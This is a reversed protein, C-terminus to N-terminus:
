HLKQALFFCGLAVPVILAAYVWFQKKNGEQLALFFSSLTAYEFVYINTGLVAMSFLAKREEPGLGLSISGMAEFNLGSVLGIILGLIAPVILASSLLLTYKTVLMVAQRERLISQSELLDEATEKFVKSMSAGSKYGQLLLDIVRSLSKSKNLEKMRFLAEEISAGNGIERYARSFDERLLPFDQTSFRKISNLLSTEDCFVSAELLLDPLFSEKLRKRKEFKIDQFLFNVFFPSFFAAAGLSAFMEPGMQFVVAGCTMAAAMLLMGEIVCFEAFRSINTMRSNNLLLKDEFARIKKEEFLFSFTKAFFIGADMEILGFRPIRVM